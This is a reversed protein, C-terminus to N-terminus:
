LLNLYQEECATEDITSPISSSSSGEAAEEEAKKLAIDAKLFNKITVDINTAIRLAIAADPDKLLEKFAPLLYKIVDNPTLIGTIEHFSAAQKFRVEKCEDKLLLNLYISRLREFALRSDTLSIVAPFHFAFNVRLKSNKHM